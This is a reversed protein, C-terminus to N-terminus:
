KRRVHDPIVVFEAESLVQEVVVDPQFIPLQFIQGYFTFYNITYRVMVMVQQARFIDM